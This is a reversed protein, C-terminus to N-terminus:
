PPVTHHLLSLHHTYPTLFPNSMFFSTFIDFFHLIHLFLSILSQLPSISLPLSFSPPSSFCCLSHILFRSLFCLFLSFSTQRFFQFVRSLPSLSPPSLSPPHQHLFPSPLLFWHVTGLTLIDINAVSPGICTNYISVSEECIDM